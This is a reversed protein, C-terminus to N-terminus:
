MAMLRRGKPTVTAMSNTPGSDTATHVERRSSSRTQSPRAAKPRNKSSTSGINPTCVM